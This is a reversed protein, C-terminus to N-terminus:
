INSEDSSHVEAVITIMNQGATVEDDDTEQIIQSTQSVEIVKSSAHYEIARESDNELDEIICDEDRMAWVINLEKVRQQQKTQKSRAAVFECAFAIIAATL